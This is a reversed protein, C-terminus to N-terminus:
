GRAVWELSGCLEAPATEWADNGLRQSRFPRWMALARDCAMATLLGYALLILWAMLFSVTRCAADSVDGIILGASGGSLWPLGYPLFFQLLGYSLVAGCNAASAAGLYVSQRTRREKARARRLLLWASLANGPAGILVVVLTPIGSLIGLVSALACLLRRSASDGGTWCIELASILTQSFVQVAEDGGTSTLNNGLKDM